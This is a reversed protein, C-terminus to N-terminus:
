ALSPQSGTSLRAMDQSFSSFEEHKDDPSSM